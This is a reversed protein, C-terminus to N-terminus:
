VSGTTGAFAPVWRELAAISVNLAGAASGHTGAKAPVVLIPHSLMMIMVGGAQEPRQIGEPDRDEFDQGDRKEAAGAPVGDPAAGQLRRHAPPLTRDGAGQDADQ